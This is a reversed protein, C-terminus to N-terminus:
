AARRAMEGKLIEVAKSLGLYSGLARLRQEELSSAVRNVWVVEEGGGGGRNMGNPGLTKFKRFPLWKAGQNECTITLGRRNRCWTGLAEYNLLKNGYDYAYGKICYPPDVFWTAEVNPALTYDGEIIQWHRIREVQSAVRERREVTWGVNQGAAKAARQGASLNRCPRVNNPNLVYGIIYRAPEPVWGPLDDVSETLPIRRIESPRVAILYRWIEAIKPHREVLIVRHDPYRLAYGASGAFPEIITGHEPAPYRLAMRYKSGFYSWFPQLM